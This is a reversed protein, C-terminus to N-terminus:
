KAATNPASCMNDVGAVADYIALASLAKNEWTHFSAAQIASNGMSLLLDRDEALREIARALGTATQRADSVPVKIGASDPILAAAGQHDLAVIPVGRSMAELLQIGTTDRLSTFLLTDARDYAAQVDAWPVRGLWEVNHELQLMSLWKPLMARQPGDGIVTLRWAKDVDVLSLAQLALLLGKRPNLKGVWLLRLPEKRYQSVQSKAAIRNATIGVDTMFRVDTAGLRRVAIETERNAVLVVTSGKVTSRANLLFADLYRVVLTRIFEFLVGGRLHAIYGLPATQGGGIPGFIFPRNLRWLHSGIHLSTISVHHVLDFEITSQLEKAVEYAKRQWQFYAPLHNWSHGGRLGRLARGLAPHEIYIFHLDLGPHDDLVKQIAAKGTPLTLVWVAAGARALSFAWNWGIGAESAEEPKCAYSSLLVRLARGRSCPLTM